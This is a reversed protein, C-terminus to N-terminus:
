SFSLSMNSVWGPPGPPSGWHRTTRSRRCFVSALSNMRIDRLISFRREEAPFSSAFSSRARYWRANAPSCSDVAASEFRGMLTRWPVMVGSTVSSIKRMAPFYRFWVSMRFLMWFHIMSSRDAKRTLTRSSGPEDSSVRPLATSLYRLMAPM